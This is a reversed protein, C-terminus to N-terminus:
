HEDSEGPLSYGRVPDPIPTKDDLLSRAALLVEERIIGNTQVWGTDERRVWSLQTFQRLAAELNLITARSSQPDLSGRIDRQVDDVWQENM